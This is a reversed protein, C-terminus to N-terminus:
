PAKPDLAVVQLSDSWVSPGVRMPDKPTTVVSCQGGQTFLSGDPNRVFATDNDSPATSPHWTTQGSLMNVEGVAANGNRTTTVLTQGGNFAWETDAGPALPQRKASGPDAVWGQGPTYAQIGAQFTPDKSRIAFLMNSNTPTTDTYLMEYYGDRYMVSPQGAGYTPSNPNAPAVIESNAGQPNNVPQWHVGDASRAVGIGTWAKGGSGALSDHAAGSFYMTYTGDPGKIVSPDCVDHADWQGAPATFVQQPDSWPGQLSAASAYYIADGNGSTNPGCFWMKYLNDAPDYIASPAYTYAVQQGNVNTLPTRVRPGQPSAPQLATLDLPAAEGSSVVAPELHLATQQVWAQEDAFIQSEAAGGDAAMAGATGLAKLQSALAAGTQSLEAGLGQLDAPLPVGHAALNQVEQQLQGVQGQVTQLDRTSTQQNISSIPFSAAPAASRINM